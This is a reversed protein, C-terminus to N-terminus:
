LERGIAITDITSKCVAIIKQTKPDVIPLYFAIVIARTDQDFEIDSFNPKGKKPAFGDVWWDEDAQYYDTTKNTQCVNLGQADAIFIELFEPHQKQLALLRRACDNTMLSKVFPTIRKSSRWENDLKTIEKATLPPKKNAKVVEDVIVQEQLLPKVLDIKKQLIQQIDKPLSSKSNVDYRSQLTYYDEGMSCLPFCGALSIVLFSRLWKYM